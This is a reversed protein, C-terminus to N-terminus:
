KEIKSIVYGHSKGSSPCVMRILYINPNNLLVITHEHILLKAEEKWIRINTKYYNLDTSSGLPNTAHMIKGCKDYAKEFKKRTLYGEEVFDIHHNVGQKQSKQVKVPAPYFHKNAQEIDNLIRNAHYYKRIKDKKEEFQKKNAILSGLSILELIKRLQLCASEIAVTESIGPIQFNSFNDVVSFRQTVEDM